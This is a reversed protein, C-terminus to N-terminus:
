SHRELQRLMGQFRAPPPCEIRLGSRFEEITGLYYAPFEYLPSEERDKKPRYGGKFRSLKLPPTLAYHLDGAVPIGSELAHLLIQHRRLYTTKAAWLTFRGIPKIRVFDTEARKGSKHSVLMRPLEVHRALPLDCSIGETHGGSESLFYFTFHLQRSGLLNKWDTATDEDRAFLVPGACEPDLDHIAVLGSEPIGARRFEPKGNMAQYRIAEIMVPTKPYWNDQIVLVNGPKELAMLSGSDYRVPLRCTAGLLPSPFGIQEVKSEM